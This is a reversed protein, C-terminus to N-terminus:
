DGVSGKKHGTYTEITKTTIVVATDGKSYSEASTAITRSVECSTFGFLISLAAAIAGVIYVIAKKQNTTM